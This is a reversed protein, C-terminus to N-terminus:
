VLGVAHDHEDFACQGELFHLEVDVAALVVPLLARDRLDAALGRLAHAGAARVEAQVRARAAAALHLVQVSGGLHCHLLTRQFVVEPVQALDLGLVHQAREFARGPVVAVPRAQRHAVHDLLARHQDAEVLALAAVQGVHLHAGHQGLLDAGHQHRQARQDTGHVRAFGARLDLQGAAVRGTRGCQAGDGQHQPVQLRQRAGVDPAELGKRGLVLANM